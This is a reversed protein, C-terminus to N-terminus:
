ATPGPAPQALIPVLPPQWSPPQSHRSAYDMGTLALLVAVCLVGTLTAIRAMISARRLALYFMAILVCKSFVILLSAGLGFVGLYALAGALIAALSALLVAKFIVFSWLPAAPHTNM